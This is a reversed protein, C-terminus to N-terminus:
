ALREGAEWGNAPPAQPLITGPANQLDDRIYMEQLETMESPWIHFNGRVMSSITWDGLIGNQGFTGKYVVRHKGLYQKTWQCSKTSVDFDGSLTWPGVYDTGEGAISMRNPETGKAFNLFLHMWGRKEHHRELYFGAWPGSPPTNLRTSRAMSM